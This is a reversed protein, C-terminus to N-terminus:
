DKEQYYLGKLEKKVNKRIKESSIASASKKMAGM